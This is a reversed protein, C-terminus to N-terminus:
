QTGGEVGGMSAPKELRRHEGGRRVLVGDEEVGVRGDLAGVGGVEEREKGRARNFEEGRWLHAGRGEVAEKM